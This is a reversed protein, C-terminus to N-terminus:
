ESTQLTLSSGVNGALDKWDFFVPKLTQQSVLKEAQDRSHPLAPDDSNGPNMYSFSRLGAPSLFHLQMRSSGLFVFRQHDANPPSYIGALLVAGCATATARCEVPARPDDPRIDITTGGSMPASGGAMALRFEDGYRRELGLPAKALRDSAGGLATKVKTLLQPSVAGGTLATRLDALDTEVLQERLAERWYIFKLAPRSEKDLQGDFTLLDRAFPDSTSVAAQQAMRLWAQADVVKTDFALAWADAESFAPRAKVAQLFRAPRSHTRGTPNIGDAFFYEPLGRTEPHPTVDMFRPDVNNNQLYGSPPSKITLMGANSHLGKWSFASSNGSVPKTWDLKPDPRVPTLGNRAYLIDGRSDAALLNQPFFGGDLLAARFADVTEAKAMHNAINHFDALRAVYPTSVAFLVGDKEGVIPSVQGNVEATRYRVKRPAEGVVAIEVERMAIRRPKGDFLYTDGAGPEMKIAYCDAVDPSGTTVGWALKANRGAIPLVGHLLGSYNLAGAHLRVEYSGRGDMGGHPDSLLVAGGTSTRSPMLAWENSFGKEKPAAPKAPAFLVAGGRACDGVGIGGQYTSWLENQPMAILDAIDLDRPRWAPIAGPHASAYAEVGRLFAAYNRRVQPDLKDVFAKSRGKLDWMRAQFDSEVLKEVLNAGPPFSSRLFEPVAGAPITGAADGRAMAIRAFFREPQDQVMAYGLGFYGDAEDAAYINAVGWTDRLITVRGMAIAPAPPVAAKPAPQATAPASIVVAQVVVGALAL